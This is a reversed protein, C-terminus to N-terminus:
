LGQNAIIGIKYKGHLRALCEAAHPYVAEDERHWPTIPLGLSKLVTKLSEANGQKASGIAQAYVQGYSIETGEIADWIRHEQAKSEDILTTGVDFFLWKIQKFENEKM